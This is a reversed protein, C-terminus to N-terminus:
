RGKFTPKRKEKYADIAERYDETSQIVAMHASVSELSTRLDTQMAQHMLKKIDRLQLPPGDALRQAFELTKDLLQDDPFVRNVLGIRLAEQADVFDGTWLLELALSPGVLRPLFYAGGNGPLLGVRIYGESFRASAGAIRIDCMLSMDMGAGVAAGNVAAILPKEFDAVALAVKHSVKQLRQKRELPTPTGGEASRRGLDGGSCFADGAGTLVVCGIDPDENASRLAQALGDLMEESQANKKEPRNLRALLVRGSTTLELDAM